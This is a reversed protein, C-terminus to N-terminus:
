QSSIAATLAPGIQDHVLQLVLRPPSLDHENALVGERERTAFLPVADPSVVQFRASAHGAGFAGREADHRALLARLTKECRAEVRGKVVSRTDRLLLAAAVELRVHDVEDREASARELDPHRM